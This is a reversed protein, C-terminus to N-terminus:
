NYLHNCCFCVYGPASNLLLHETSPATAEPKKVTRRVRKKKEGGPTASSPAELQEQTTKNNTHEVPAYLGGQWEPLPSSLAGESTVLRVPLEAYPKKIVRKRSSTAATAFPVSPFQVQVNPIKRIHPLSIRLSLFKLLLGPTM